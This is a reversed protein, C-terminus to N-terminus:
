CRRYPKSIKSFHEIWAATDEVACFITCEQGKKQADFVENGARKQQLDEQPVGSRMKQLIM